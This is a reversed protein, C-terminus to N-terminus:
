ELAMIPQHQTFCHTNARTFLSHLTSISKHPIKIPQTKCLFDLHKSNSNHTNRPSNHTAKQVFPKKFNFVSDFAWFTRITQCIQPTTRTNLHWTESITHLTLFKQTLMQFFNYKKEFHYEIKLHCVCVMMHISGSSCQHACHLVSNGNMM